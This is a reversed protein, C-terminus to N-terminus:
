FKSEMRHNTRLNRLAKKCRILICFSSYVRGSAKNYGILGKKTKMIEFM